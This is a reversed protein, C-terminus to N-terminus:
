VDGRGWWCYCKRRLLGHLGINVCGICSYMPYRQGELLRMWYSTRAQVASRNQSCEAQKEIVFLLPIYQLVLLTLVQWVLFVRHTHLYSNPFFRLESLPITHSLNALFWCYSKNLYSAITRYFPVLKFDSTLLGMTIYTSTSFAQQFTHYGSEQHEWWSCIRSFREQM